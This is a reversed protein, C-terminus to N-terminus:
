STKLPQQVRKGKYALPKFSAVAFELEIFMLFLSLKLAKLKTWAESM